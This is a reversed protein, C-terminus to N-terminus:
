FTWFILFFKIFVLSVPSDCQNFWLAINLKLRQFSCYGKFCWVFIAASLTKIKKDKSSFLAQYKMHIRQGASSESSVDLRIKESFCHFFILSHRRRCDQNASEPNFVRYHKLIPVGLVM